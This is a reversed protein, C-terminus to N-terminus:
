CIVGAELWCEILERADAIATAEDVDYEGVLLAAVTSEDFESDALASWVFEASSNLSVLRDFDIMEISEAVIVAEGALRRLMLGETKKM